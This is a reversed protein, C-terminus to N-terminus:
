KRVHMGMGARAPACAAAPAGTRTSAYLPARREKGREAEGQIQREERVLGWDYMSEGRAVGVPRPPPAAVWVQDLAAGGQQSPGSPYSHRTQKSQGAGGAGLSAGWPVRPAGSVGRWLQGAGDCGRCVFAKGARFARGPWGRPIGELAGEPRRGRGAVDM